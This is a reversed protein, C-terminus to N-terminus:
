GVLNRIEIGDPIKEVGEDARGGGSNEREADGGVQAGFPAPSGRKECTSNGESRVAGFGARAGGGVGNGFRETIPRKTDAFIQKGDPERPKRGRMGNEREYEDHKEQKETEVQEAFEKAEEAARKLSKLSEIRATL